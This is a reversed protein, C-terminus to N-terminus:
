RGHEGVGNREFDVVSSIANVIGLASKEMQENNQFEWFDAIILSILNVKETDTM